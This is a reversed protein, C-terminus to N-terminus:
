AGRKAAAKKAPRKRIEALAVKAPDGDPKAREADLKDLRTKAMMRMKAHLTARDPRVREGGVMTELQRINARIAPPDAMSNALVATGDPDLRPHEWVWGTVPGPNGQADVTQIPTPEGLIVDPWCGLRIDDWADPDARLIDMQAPTIEIRM